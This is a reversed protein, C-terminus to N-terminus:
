SAYRCGPGEPLPLSTEVVTGKGGAPRVSWAGGLEEARQRMSALGVGAGPEPPMGTGDDTIRLVLQDRAQGLEVTLRTAQSHRLANTVAEAAIHYVAVETAAPIEPMDDPLSVTVDMGAETAPETLRSVAGALGLEALPAPRLERSIQRVATIATSAQQHVSSLLQAARAPDAPLARAAAEATFGLGALVAGVGDHLDRRLQRREEERSTVLRERAARLDLETVAACVAAGAHAATDDLLQRDRPDFPEGPSRAALRLWGLTAGQFMLPISIAVPQPTGREVRLLGGAAEAVVYPSRVTEAAARALAGLVQRPDTTAALRHSLVSLVAYPDGRAGYLMRDVARSVLRYMPNVALAIVITALVTVVPRGSGVLLGGLAVLSLAALGLASALLGYTLSRRLVPDIEYLNHRLVAVGLCAPLALAGASQVPTVWAAPLVTGGFITVIGLLAGACIWVLQLRVVGVCHRLRIMLAALCSLALVLLLALVVNLGHRAVSALMPLALPNAPRGAGQSPLVAAAATFLAIMSWASVLLPRWRASPLRGDPILLLLVTVLSLWGPAWVWQALWASWAAGPAEHQVAWGAYSDAAYAVGSTAMLLALWGLRNGRRTVILAGAATFALALVADAPQAQGHATGASLWGGAAVLVCTLAFVGWAVLTRLWVRV